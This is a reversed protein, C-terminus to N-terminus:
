VAHSPTEKFKWVKGKDKCEALLQRSNRKLLPHIWEPAIEALPLLTFRRDHLRPHPIILGPLRIISFNFYLIDIDLTRSAYRGNTSKETRGLSKEIKQTKNLIEQPELSTEVRLVRNLFHVPAKFGWPESAYLSSRQTIEGVSAGIM